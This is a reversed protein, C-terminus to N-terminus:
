FNIDLGIVITKAIPFSGRQYGAVIASAYPGSTSRGEPNIGRYESAAHFYLNQGSAYLRLNSLGITKVFTPSLTYGINVERLAFYSADEVVYDTLLWNFGVEEYPTKGDGPNQPSIWRNLNYNRNRSRIDPYNPDGNILEGGQVGQFSFTLDVSKYSFTNTMGWTFDPYPNGIVTRDNNDIRNDGNIDVLKLGALTFLSPLNTTLGADKAAQIQEPSTWIGDTKFGYFQVLPDGVKTQYIETREGQNRLYKEDGLERVKNETHSLNASTTWKISKSKINTTSLEFEIGRNDLSGLNNWALPVGVFAQTAQQLLLKDTLSKYADVTLNIRNKLVTLDFGVNTQFTSEWTIDRNAIITSTTAQGNTLTGNGIGFSYDANSMLSVFGYDLIRNNGSVGYSGRFTLKNIWDVNSLFKEKNVVWGISAAPFSGWKRGAGFYSSGDTRYSASLLYKSKYAYNIRGLYSLLGVQTDSGFTQAKNIFTANNLTRIDDSAYDQGTTQTKSTTTRQATYGLLVDFSNEKIEKKYNFTNESLLDIYSNNYYVGKNVVGDAEANRNTWDLRNENKINLAALTKFDLGPMINISLTSGAQLGYSRTDYDHNLLSSMPNNQASNSPSGLASVYNTGDPLVFPSGDPYTDPYTLGIFHRPQAYDGAKISAYQPNQNVFAATVANHQFPIIDSYRWFNTYNESPTSKKQFSPNLNINLKTRKSLDIDIKSRLNFKEFNSKLMIGEESQYGSSIAYRMNKDGGTASLQINKFDAQRLVEDQYVYADGGMMIDHIVYGALLNNQKTASGNYFITSNLAPNAIFYPDTARIAKEKFLLAVYEPTSMIPYTEYATKIGSSYKFAYKVKDTKGSKTTILIVGSAGRSGYIAASAADKLVEVSAVDAMNISALGDPVPQGDIVVLPSAGANISSIGRITIASDAGAESSINSVQVGAIKGQLAQDLRTVAIDDLKENTYKSISGTVLSKKRTGYGIVVVDDLVNVSEKLVIDITKEKGVIAIQTEFGVYSYKLVSKSNKIAITYKGDIDTIVSKDECTVTVGPISSGKNDLVTGSVKSGTQAHIIATFILLFLLFFKKM